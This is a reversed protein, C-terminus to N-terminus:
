SFQVGIEGDRRWSVKCLRRVRGNTSMLLTFNEPVPLQGVYLRAGGHSIDLINCERPVSGEGWVMAATISIQKRRHRRSNFGLPAM